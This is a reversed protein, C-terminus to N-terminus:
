GKFSPRHIVVQRPTEKSTLVCLQEGLGTIVQVMKKLFNYHNEELAHKEAAQV